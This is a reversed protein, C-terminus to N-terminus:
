GLQGALKLFVAKQSHMRNQAQEFVVSRPDDVLEGEIEYGRHAPLCHMVLVDHGELVQRNLQYPSLLKIRREKEAAFSEDNFFEMDLWTDTYVVDSDAVATGLDDYERYQGSSRAMEMLEEDRAAENM